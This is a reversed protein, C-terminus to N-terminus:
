GLDECACLGRWLLAICDVGSCHPHSNPVSSHNGATNRGARMFSHSVPQKVLLNASGMGKLTIKVLGRIPWLDCWSCSLFSKCSSCLFFCVFWKCSGIAAYSIALLLRCCGSRWGQSPKACWLTTKWFWSAPVLWGLLGSQLWFPNGGLYIFSISPGLFSQLQVLSSVAKDRMTRGQDKAKSESEIGWLM